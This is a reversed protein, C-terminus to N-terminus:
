IDKKKFVVISLSIFAIIYASSVGIIQYIEGMWDIFIGESLSVINNAPLFLYYTFLFKQVPDIQSLIQLVFLIIIGSGVAWGSEKVMVSILLGFSVLAIAPPITLLMSIGFNVLLRNSSYVLYAGEKLAGLGCMSEGLILGIFNVLVILVVSICILSLFKGLIFQSRKISRALLIKVTGSSVEESISITSLVLFILSLMQLATKISFASLQFGTPIVASKARLGYSLFTAVIQFVLVSVFMWSALRKRFIKELEVKTVTKIM